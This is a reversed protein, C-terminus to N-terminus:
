EEKKEEDPVKVGLASKSGKFARMEENAGSWRRLADGVQTGLLRFGPVLNAYTPMSVDADRGTELARLMTAAVDAPDLPPTLHHLTMAVGTFMGTHIMGPCVLTM